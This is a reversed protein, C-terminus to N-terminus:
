WFRIPDSASLRKLGREAVDLTPIPPLHDSVIVLGTQLAAGVYVCEAIKGPNPGIIIRLRRRMVCLRNFFPVLCTQCFRGLSRSRESISNVNKCGLPKKRHCELLKDLKRADADSDENEKHKIQSSNAVDRLFFYPFEVFPRLFHQLFRQQSRM